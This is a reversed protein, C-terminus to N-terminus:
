RCGDVGGGPLSAILLAPSSVFLWVQALAMYEEDEEDCVAPVLNFGVLLVAVALVFNIM